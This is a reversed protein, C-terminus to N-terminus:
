VTELFPSQRLDPIPLGHDLYDDRSPDLRLKSLPYKALPFMVDRVEPDLDRVEVPWDRDAV